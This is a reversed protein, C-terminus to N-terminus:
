GALGVALLPTLVVGLVAGALMFPGFPFAKRKVVKLASLLGGIVGGLLFGVWIGFLLQVWGVYGLAIGLVGSLRVDGYGMGRPHVIWLVFYLGGAILWGWGSRILADTDRTVLWGLLVLGVVVAYSPAIIRTPLLMTRWDVVALATGVPVLYLLFTLPWDWGVVLGLLGGAVAAVVASKWALGPHRAVDAYLEKGPEAPPAVDSEDVVPDAPADDGGAVSPEAQPETEPEPVAAILRPVALGALACLAAAVAATDLHAWGVLSDM